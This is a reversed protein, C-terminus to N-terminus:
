RMHHMTDASLEGTEFVEKFVEIAISLDSQIWRADWADGRIYGKGREPIGLPAQWSIATDETEGYIVAMLLFKHPDARFELSGVGGDKDLRLTVVGGFEFATRLREEIHPWTPGATHSGPENGSHASMTIQDSM